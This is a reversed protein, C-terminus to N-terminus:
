ASRETGIGHGRLRISPPHGNLRLQSRRSSSPPPSTLPLSKVSPPWLLDTSLQRRRITGDLQRCPARPTQLASQQAMAELCFMVSALVASMVPAVSPMLLAVARRMSASPQSTTTVPRLRSLLSALALISSALEEKGIVLLRELMALAVAKDKADHHQFRTAVAGGALCLDAHPPNALLAEDLADPDLAQVAVLVPPPVWEPQLEAAIDDARAHVGVSRLDRHAHHVRAVEALPHRGLAEYAAVLIRTCVERTADRDAHHLELGLM